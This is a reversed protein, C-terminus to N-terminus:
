ADLALQALTLIGEKTDAGAIFQARHCFIGDAVGTVTQFEMGSLGAWAVPLPKRKSFRDKSAPVTQLRWTKRDVHPFAVFFVKAFREETTVVEKWPASHELVLVNGNMIPELSRIYEMERVRYVVQRIENTLITKALQVMQAFAEDPDGSGNVPNFGGLVQGIGYVHPAYPTEGNDNMDITLILGQDLAYWAAEIQGFSDLEKELIHRGYKLWIMGCSSYSHGEPRKPADPQHHDYLGHQDDYIGGVDVLIDHAPDRSDLVKRDRTRIIKVSPNFMQCIACAMAEDAHAIGSHTYITFM